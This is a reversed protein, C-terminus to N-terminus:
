KNNIFIDRFNVLYITFLFENISLFENILLFENEFFVYFRYFLM